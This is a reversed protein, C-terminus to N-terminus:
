SSKVYHCLATCRQRLNDKQLIKGRRLTEAEGDSFPGYKMEEEEASWQPLPPHCYPPPRYSYQIHYDQGNPYGLQGPRCQMPPDQGIQGQSFQYQTQNHTLYPEQKPQLCVNVINIAIYQQGVIDVNQPM